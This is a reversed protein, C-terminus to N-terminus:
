PKYRLLAGINGYRRLQSPPNIHRVHCRKDLAKEIADDIVDMLKETHKQCSPCRAEDVYLFQCQPCFRGPKSFYRTVLLTQVEGRNLSRLTDKLGSVALGGKKLESSFTSVIANDGQNKLTKEFTLVEKLIKRKSDGPRIKLQGKLRKMLYPHLLPELDPYYKDLCGVLFWDFSNKKFLKFTKQAAKKFYERLQAHIHREIRKSEYGKWGGEKVQSPVDGELTYLVEIDGMFVEYWKAEKRDISFIFIRKHENLIASLPRVYPNRNFIIRKRPSDPLNFVQWFDDGSCSFIAIGAYNYSNLNRTLFKNIKNLDKFLSEKKDKSMDMVDLQSKSANHLNKFSLSIEKKTQRSKDTDFYFSTTLFRNSKFKALTEIQGRNLLKM